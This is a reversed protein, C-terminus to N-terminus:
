VQLLLLLMFEQPDRLAGLLVKTDILAHPYKAESM